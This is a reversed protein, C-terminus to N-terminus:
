RRSCVRTRVHKCNRRGAHFDCRRQRGALRDFRDNQASSRKGDSYFSASNRIYVQFDGTQMQVRRECSATQLKSSVHEHKRDGDAVRRGDRRSRPWELNSQLFASPRHARWAAAGRQVVLLLHKRDSNGGTRASKGQCALRAAASKASDLPQHAKEDLFDAQM